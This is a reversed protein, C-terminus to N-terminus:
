DIEPVASELGLLLLLVGERVMVKPGESRLDEEWIEEARCGELNM